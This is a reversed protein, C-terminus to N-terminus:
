FIISLFLLPDFNVPKFFLDAAQLLDLLGDLRMSSSSNLENSSQKSIYLICWAESMYVEDTDLDPETTGVSLKSYVISDISSAYVRTDLFLTLDM